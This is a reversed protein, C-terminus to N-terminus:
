INPVSGDWPLSINGICYRDKPTVLSLTSGLSRALVMWKMMNGIGKIGYPAATSRVWLMDYADDNGNFPNTGATGSTLFSGTDVQVPIFNAASLTTSMYAWCNPVAPPLSTGQFHTFNWSNVNASLGFIWPAIDAVPYTGSKLPEYLMGVYRTSGGSAHSFLYWAYPAANDAGMQTRSINTSAFDSGTPVANSGGGYLLVEDANFTTISNNTVNVPTPFGTPSLKMRWTHDNTCRQFNFQLTGGPIQINFYPQSGLSGNMIAATTILDSGGASAGTGSGTITWGCSVLLQKLNWIVGAYGTGISGQVVTDKTFQYTM